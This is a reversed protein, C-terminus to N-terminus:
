TIEKEGGMWGRVKYPHDHITFLPTDAPHPLEGDGVHSRAALADEVAVAVKADILGELATLLGSRKAHRNVESMVLSRAIAALPIGRDKAYALALSYDNNDTFTVKIHHSM